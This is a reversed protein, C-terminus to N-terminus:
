RLEGEVIVLGYGDDPRGRRAEGGSIAVSGDPLPVVLLGDTLTVSPFAGRGLETAPGSPWLAVAAALFLVAAAAAAATWAPHWRRTEGALAGEAIRAVARPDPEFAERLRRDLSTHPDDTM